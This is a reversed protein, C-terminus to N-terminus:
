QVKFLYCWHTSVTTRSLVCAPFLCYPKTVQDLGGLYFSIYTNSPRRADGLTISLYGMQFGKGCAARVQINGNGREM